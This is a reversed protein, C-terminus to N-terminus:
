KQPFPAKQKSVGCIYNMDTDYYKALVILYDIPIRIKGLEYDAYTRQGIHLLDAIQTQTLDNDERLDRIMKAYSSLRRSAPDIRQRIKSQSM